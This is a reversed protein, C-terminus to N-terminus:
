QDVSSCASRNKIMNAQNRHRMNSRSMGGISPEDFRNSNEDTMETQPAPVPQSQINLAQIREQLDVEYQM